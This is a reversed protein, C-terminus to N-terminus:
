DYYHYQDYSSDNYYYYQQHFIYQWNFKYPFCKLFLHLRNHTASAVVGEGWQLTSQCYIKLFWPVGLFTWSWCQSPPLPTLQRATSGEEQIKYFKVPLKFEILRTLYLANCVDLRSEPLRRANDKASFMHWSSMTWRLECWSLLRNRSARFSAQFVNSSVHFVTKVGM